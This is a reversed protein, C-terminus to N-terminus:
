PRDIAGDTFEVASSAAFGASGTCFPRCREGCATIPAIPFCAQGAPCDASSACVPEAECSIGSACVLGGENTTLCGSLGLNCEPGGCGTTNESGTGCVGNGVCTGRSCVLGTGCSAGDDLGACPGAVVCGLISDAVEGPPCVATGPSCTGPPRCRSNGNPYVCCVCGDNCVAPDNKCTRNGCQAQSVQAGAATRLGLAGLLGAAAGKLAARRSVGTALRRSLEDFRNGDM